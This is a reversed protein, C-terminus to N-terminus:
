FSVQGIENPQRDLADLLVQGISVDRNLLPIRPAGKWSKELDNYTTAFM